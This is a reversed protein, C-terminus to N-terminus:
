AAVKFDGAIFAVLAAKFLSAPAHRARPFRQALSLFASRAEADRNDDTALDALLYLAAAASTDTPYRTTIDRLASRAVDRRGRALLARARQYRAAAALTSPASVGEFATIAEDDRNLRALMLGNNFKDQGTGLGAAFAKRYGTVARAAVGSRFAARALVLTESATPSTFFKDFLSMGERADVGSPSDTLLSILAARAQTMRATDSPVLMRLRIPAIRDGAATYAAIAGEVDGSRELAIAETPKRRDKAVPLSLRDLLLTREAKDRTVGAARLYLWDKVLPAQEAAAEYLMRASDLQNARDLARARLVLRKAPDDTPSPSFSDAVAATAKVAANGDSGSCASSLLFCGISFLRTM